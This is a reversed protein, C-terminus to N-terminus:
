MQPYAPGGSSTLIQSQAFVDLYAEETNQPLTVSQSLQDATTNLTFAGV